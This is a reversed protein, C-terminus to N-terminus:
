GSYLQAVSDGASGNGGLRLWVVDVWVCGSVREGGRGGGEQGRRGM